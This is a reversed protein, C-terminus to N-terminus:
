SNPVVHREEGSRQAIQFPAARTSWTRIILDGQQEPSDLSRQDM